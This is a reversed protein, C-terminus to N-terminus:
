LGKRNTAINILGILALLKKERSAKKSILIRELIRVGRAVDYITEQYVTMKNVEKRQVIGEPGVV